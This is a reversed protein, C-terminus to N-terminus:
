EKTLWREPLCAMVCVDSNRFRWDSKYMFDDWFTPGDYQVVESVIGTMGHEAKGIASVILRDGVSYKAVRMSGQREKGVAFQGDYEGM